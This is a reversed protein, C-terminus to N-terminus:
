KKAYGTCEEEREQPTADKKLDREKSKIQVNKYNQQEGMM